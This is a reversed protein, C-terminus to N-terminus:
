THPNPDQTRIGRMEGWSAKCVHDDTYIDCCRYTAPYTLLPMSMNPIVFAKPVFFNFTFILQRQALLVHELNDRSYFPTPGIMCAAAPDAVQLTSCAKSYFDQVWWSEDVSVRPESLPEYAAIRYRGKLRSAVWKWAALLANKRAKDKFM